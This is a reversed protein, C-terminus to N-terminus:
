ELFLTKPVNYQIRLSDFEDKSLPGWFLDTHKLILWYYVTDRGLPYIYEMKDYIAENYSKPKQKAIIFDKNYKFSIIYPPIDIISGLIDKNDPYYTYGDGLKQTYPDLIASFLFYVFLLITIGIKIKKKTIKDM